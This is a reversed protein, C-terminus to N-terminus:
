DADDCVSPLDCTEPQGQCCNETLFAMLGNMALFNASYFLTRGERRCFVLGAHKLQALHFSLTSPPLDLVESIRGAPVGSKGAQILLRFIQLRSEQALAALSKVANLIEMNRSIDFKKPCKL